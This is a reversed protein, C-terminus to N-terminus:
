KVRAYYHWGAATVISPLTPRPAKASVCGAVRRGDGFQVDNRRIADDSFFSTRSEFTERKIKRYWNWGAMRTFWCTVAPKIRRDPCPLLETKLKGVCHMRSLTHRFIPHDDVILIKNFEYNNKGSASLDVVNTEKV